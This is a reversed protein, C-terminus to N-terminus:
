EQPSYNTDYINTPTTKKRLIRHLTKKGRNNLLAGQLADITVSIQLHAEKYSDGYFFDQTSRTKNSKKSSTRSYPSLSAM